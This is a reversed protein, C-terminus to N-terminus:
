QLYTLYDFVALILLTSAPITLNDYGKHSIAEIITTFFALTASVFVINMMSIEKNLFSLLVVTILFSSTFFAFSGSMTKSHGFIRYPKWPYGKGILAAIPDCIALILIPIFYFVLNDFHEYVLYCGYVILPYLISGRTVRDVGNISPLLHFKLSFILILLFSACLLLVFWQDAIFSPFFLTLIGTSFHVYKRTFEARVKFVHYILEASAFLLLFAGAMLLTHILATNM